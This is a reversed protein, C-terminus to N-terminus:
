RLEPSALPRFEQADDWRAFGFVMYDRQYASRVLAEIEDDYIDDLTVNSFESEPPLNDASIGVEGALFSLGQALSPERLIHDPATFQSFGRLIEHQSAWAADVRISTQGALNSGVFRAFAGFALRHNSPQDFEPSDAIPFNIGYYDRLTERIGSYAQAGTATFHTAYARFLRTVPHSVVSFSRHNGAKRKWQRLSKQTFDTQLEATEGSLGTLWEQVRKTPGCKIPAFLLPVGLAVLYSPVAPGRKSEYNQLIALELYDARALDTIMEAYNSVKEELTKPNQRIIKPAADPLKKTAGL